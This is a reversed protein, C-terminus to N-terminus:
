KGFIKSLTRSIQNNTMNRKAIIIYGNSDITLTYDRYSEQSGCATLCSYITRIGDPHNTIKCGQVYLYGDDKIKAIKKVEDPYRNCDPIDFSFYYNLYGNITITVHHTACYM